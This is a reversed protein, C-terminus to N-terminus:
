RDALLQRRRQLAPHRAPPSIAMLHDLLTILRQQVMPIARDSDILEDVAGELFEEWGPLSLRVRSVRDSGIVVSVDLNRIALRRLLGEIADIVQVVTYPDSNAPSSARLGIDNLLRFALLPDQPFSREMGAELGSLLEQDQEAALGTSVHFVVEDQWMMDGVSVALFVEADFREAVALLPPLDIQRLVAPSWPWRVQHSHGPLDLSGVPTEVYPHPFLEDIVARGRDGLDQLIPALQLSNLASLQLRRAIALSALVSLVGLIPVVVSVRDGPKTSLVVTSVYAFSGLFVGFAHWVLPSDRFLNLRPSHTTSGFQVVLFLLAYVVSVLAMLGAGIGAFYATLQDASITRAWDLRSALVGVVGGTIIYVLQVLGARIRRRRRLASVLSRNSRVSAAATM